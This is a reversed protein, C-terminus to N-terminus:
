PPLILVRYYRQAQASAVPDLLQLLGGTGPWNNTLPAWQPSTLTDAREVRYTQGVQSSFNLLFNTASNTVGAALLTNSASPATAFTWVPGAAISAGALEDVRWYFRASGALPAPTYATTANTGKFEPANTTAAAVANSSVGFFLRHSTANSGATWALGTTSPVDVAGNAPSPNSPPGAVVAAPMVFLTISQAPLMNSFSNGTLVLDALRNIANAATLQWVQATGAPVFNTLVVSTTATAALQKNIVMVTLAGDTSRVAAFTAVLDPNPGTANVSTDGFTSKSGDYNRYIKIAKYVVNTANVVTWRTALDLSERGFIGLIDAQATAGNIHGEGGWNYETIGIRTGPYYAAVWDKMRPILKVVGNIWTQDVYNTDWFKRTLRNRLAQTAPSVDGGSVNGDEPYCHLTFYDLLRQGSNTARQHFQSLLWVVYDTNGNTSRDPLYSWGHASGYQLDAGSYLYGSWGFEEPALVVANPDITKVVGAYDFFKDRIEARSAGNPHVDQHTSHWISHENDMLYYRVGGNTSWGWRDNLHRIFAAQFASNTLFNADAPNNTTIPITTNTVIGNGADPMWQWDNRAQLGYKAISYSALKGRNTNLTPMWGIMPITIMSEAGGNKSNAVFDDAAAGPTAPSDAISEFYWDAGRNHANTLWNYRTEANGGSRNIPCNLDNLQNSSAFAVGYILPSIPHRNLQADVTINAATNTVPPAGNTLLLIDDLYFVQTAAGARDKISFRTFDPANAVGLSALSFTFQQWTNAALPPLNLAPKSGGGTEAYIQLQQGGAPGGNIRFTLNTYSSADFASHHLSFAGWAATITVAVAKSGSHVVATSGFDCTASWKWDEWSNQLSDTYILQNTQAALPTVVATAALCSLLGPWRAPALTSMLM